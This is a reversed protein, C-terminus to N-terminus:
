PAKCLAVSHLLQPKEIGSHTNKLLDHLRSVNYDKIAFTVIKSESYLSQLLIVYFLIILIFATNQLSEWRISNFCKDKNVSM